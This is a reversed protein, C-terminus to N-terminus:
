KLCSNGPARRSIKVGHGAFKIQPTLVSIHPGHTYSTGLPSPLPSTAYISVCKVKEFSLQGERLMQLIVDKESEEVWRFEEEKGEKKEKESLEADLGKSSNYTSLFEALKLVTGAGVGQLVACEEAVRFPTPHARMSEEGRKAAASKIYDGQFTLSSSTSFSNSFSVRSFIFMARVLYLHHM